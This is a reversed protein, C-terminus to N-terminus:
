IERKVEAGGNRPAKETDGQPCRTLVIRRKTVSRSWAWQALRLRSCVACLQTQSQILSGRRSTPTDDARVFPISFHLFVVVLNPGPHATLRQVPQMVRKSLSYQRCHKPYLRDKGFSGFTPWRFPRRYYALDTRTICGACRLTGASSRTSVCM